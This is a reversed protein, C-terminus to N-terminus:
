LALSGVAKVSCFRACTACDLRREEELPKNATMVAGDISLIWSRHVYVNRGFGCPRDRSTSNGFLVSGVLRYPSM